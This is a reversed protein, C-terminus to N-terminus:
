NTNKLAKEFYDLQKKHDGLNGYAWGTNHLSTATDPHNEGLLETRIKLAKEHYDLQKKHDGLDGYASGVNSLSRTTDPHNEGLIRTQIKLAKEFCDLEKKHDGLAAYAGGINNWSTATDPHNEGLLETRIKLAKEFYDLQKKNLGLEGFLNGLDNLLHAELEINKQSTNNFILSQEVLGKAEEYSGRYYPPYAQLWTLRSAHEPAINVAHGQWARLHDIEYEFAPLNKFDGRRDQFWRGIRECTVNVWERNNKIDLEEKRVERVLRHISYSEMGPTKRLLRLETGIALANTLEIETKDLLACILSIGMPAAGSWTLVDLIEKLLPEEKLIQENIKLTSYLDAEHKTFGIKAFKGPLAAKLNQALLDSYQRWNISPRYRLYAGALEIALPLGDLKEVVERMADTEAGEAPSRGAEQLLLKISNERNLIDLPVPIFGPQENRSTILIHGNTERAPLYHEIQGFNELNDFIVLSDSFTKIRVKAIELKFKHESEPAAWKAKEAIDTLQADIDQDANIWVVGNPYENKYKYAYEVALQTKGLGGLGQFAATQGIATPKGTALQKRVKLLAEERGIVADGKQRYPVYFVPNQPGYNPRSGSEIIAPEKANSEASMENLLNLLPEGFDRFTIIEVPVGSALVLERQAERILIYNPGTANKFIEGISKLQMGFHQDDLSFGVFLFSNSSLLNQLTSLAAKYKHESGNEGPYLCNYGDTTIIIEAANHITGHLHWITPKDVGNRLAAAQEAPAEINWSRLNDTDPCAWKLVDDYNTTIILNSGLKWVAKAISLSKKDITSQPIDFEARLFDYWVSNLGERAYRAAELLNAKGLLARVLAADDNKSEEDLRTAASNLLQTWSKFVPEGSEGHLVSM